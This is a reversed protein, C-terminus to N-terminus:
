CDITRVRGALLADATSTQLLHLATNEDRTQEIAGDVSDLLSAIAQQEPLAPLPIPFSLYGDYDLNRIGTTQQELRATVGRIYRHWLARLTYNPSLRDYDVRLQQCFNNCYVPSMREILAVRGVPAGPGGGSRELMLDGDRMLRRAQDRPSLQRWAAGDSNVRGDRTLDAARLVRVREGDPSTEDGWAGPQSLVLVERLPVADWSAPINGLGPVDKYESHLGPLGRTLLEHLLADRLRETAAIVEDAREIAEDISDLVAAIARQESLPPLLLKLARTAGLTLGFRTIGNAIRSFERAATQSALARALFAGDLSTDIPRALGLHYGCLVDPMDSAVYAPVGIEDVTESDKTFLVDGERLAWRQCETPSATAEMFPMDICVQRNYFVDTYNCLRVPIEGEVTKKDVSSFTVEAVDGLRVVNWGDPTQSAVPARTTAAVPM